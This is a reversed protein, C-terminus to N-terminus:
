LKKSKKKDLQVFFTVVMLFSSKRSRYCKVKSIYRHREEKYIDSYKKIGTHRDAKGKERKRKRM